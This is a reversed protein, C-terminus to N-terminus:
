NPAKVQMFSKVAVVGDVARAHRIVQDIKAPRDVVGVLVVHGGLVAFDVQSAKLDGDGIIKTKLKASITYDSTKSPQSAVWYTEVRKVGEVGRAIAPAQQRLPAEPPAVGAIVVQGLHCFVDLTVAKKTDVDAIRKRVTASIKADSAQEAVTREETASKYATSAVTTCGTVLVILLPALRCIM